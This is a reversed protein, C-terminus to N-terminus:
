TFLEFYKNMDFYGQKLVNQYLTIADGITLDVMSSIAKLARELDDATEPHEISFSKLQKKYAPKLRDYLTKM